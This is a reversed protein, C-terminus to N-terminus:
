MIRRALPKHVNIKEIGDLSKRPITKPNKSERVPKKPKKPIKLKLIKPIATKIFPM